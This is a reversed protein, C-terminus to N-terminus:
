NVQATALKTNTLGVQTKQASTLPSIISATNLNSVAADTVVLVGSQAEHYTCGPVSQKELIRTQWDNPIVVQIGGGANCGSTPASVVNCIYADDSTAGSILKLAHRGLRKLYTAGAFLAYAFPSCHIGDLTYKNTTGDAKWKGQGRTDELVSAFDLPMAYGMLNGLVQANYSQLEVENAIITQGALDSWNNTTTTKPTITGLHFNKTPYLAKISAQDALTKAASDSDFLHNAGFEAVIDTAYSILEAQLPGAYALYDAPSGGWQVMQAWAYSNLAGSTAGYSGDARQYNDGLGSALSDGLMVVTSKDTDGFIVSPTYTFNANFSASRATVLTLGTAPYVSGESLTSNPGRTQNCCGDYLGRVHFLFTDPISINVWDSTVNTLPATVVSASGGNFTIPTFVGTPYEIEAGIITLNGAPSQANGWWHSWVIKLRTINDRAFSAFSYYVRAATDNQGEAVSGRTGVLGIM